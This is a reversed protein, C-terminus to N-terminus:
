EKLKEKIESLQKNLILLVYNIDESKNEIQSYVTGISQEINSLREQLINLQRVIIDENM